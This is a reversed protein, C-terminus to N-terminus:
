IKITKFLTYFFDYLTNFISTFNRFCYSITLIQIITLSISILDLLYDNKLCLSNILFSTLSLLLFNFIIKTLEAKFLITM